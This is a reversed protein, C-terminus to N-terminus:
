RAGGGRGAGAWYTFEKEHCVGELDLVRAQFYSQADSIAQNYISPGLERVCFDLLLTAALDGLDADLNEAFYRKLSAELLKATEPTLTIAM